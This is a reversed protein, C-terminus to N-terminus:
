SVLPIYHIRYFFDIITMHMILSAFFKCNMKIQNFFLQPLVHAQFLYLFLLFAKTMYAWVLHCFYVILVKLYINLLWLIPQKNLKMLPILVLICALFNIWQNYLITKMRLIIEFLVLYLCKLKFIICINKNKRKVVLITVVVYNYYEFNLRFGKYQSNVVIIWSGCGLGVGICSFPYKQILDSLGLLWTEEYKWLLM